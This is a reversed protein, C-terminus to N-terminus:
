YLNDFRFYFLVGRVKVGQNSVIQAALISDLGSSILAIAGIM